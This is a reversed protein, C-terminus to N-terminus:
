LLHIGQHGPRFSRASVKALHREEIHGGEEAGCLLNAQKMPASFIPESDGSLSFQDQGFLTEM